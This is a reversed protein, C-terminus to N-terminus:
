KEALEKGHWLNKESAVLDRVRQMWIKQHFNLRIPRDCWSSGELLSAGFQDTRQGRELGFELTLERELVDLADGCLVCIASRSRTWCPGRPTVVHVKSQVHSPIELITSYWIFYM